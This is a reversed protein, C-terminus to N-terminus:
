YLAWKRHVKTIIVKLILFLHLQDLGLLDFIDCYPVKLYQTQMKINQSCIYFLLFIHLEKVIKDVPWMHEELGVWDTTRLSFSMSQGEDGDVLLEYTSVECTSNEFVFSIMFSPSTCAPFLPLYNDIQTHPPPTRM